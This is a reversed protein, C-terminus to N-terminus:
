LLREVRRSVEPGEISPAQQAFEGSRDPVFSFGAGNIYEYFWVEFPEDEAVPDDDLSSIDIGRFGLYPRIMPKGRTVRYVEFCDEASMGAFKLPYKLTECFANRAGDPDAIDVEQVHVIKSDGTERHWWASLAFKDPESPAFLLPHIHPHFLGSNKGRTFEYGVVAAYAGRLPNDSEGRQKRRGCAFLAKTNAELHLFRELADGGDKVTMGMAFLRGDPFKARLVDFRILYQRVLKSSRRVACMQCLQHIQCFQAKHLRVLDIRPYHRFEILNCCGELRQAVRAIYQQSWAGVYGQSSALAAVYRARDLTGSKAM